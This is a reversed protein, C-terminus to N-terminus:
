FWSAPLPAGYWTELLWSSISVGSPPLLLTGAAGEDRLQDRTIWRADSMEVGDVAIDTAGPTGTDARGFFGVMLSAPFPWPQSAGYTVDGVAVGTEEAVERRVADELAEGPEVFGALTSWRHEPWATQHGILARDADDTILMIVAPDTRPFHHAGCAPCVRLHGASRIDTQTGCRPCFPTAALWRAMGVAHVAVSLEDAELMPALVRMSVPSLDDAVREVVVAARRVGDLEGLYIWTGEPADERDLWRLAPGDVTAVHEGGLVIVQVGPVDWADDARLHASRDHRARDFAFRPSM